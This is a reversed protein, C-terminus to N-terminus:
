DCQIAIPMSSGSYQSLFFYRLLANFKTMAQLPKVSSLDKFLKLCQNELYTDLYRGVVNNNYDVGVSSWIISKSYITSHHFRYVLKIKKSAVYIVFSPCHMFFTSLRIASAFAAM